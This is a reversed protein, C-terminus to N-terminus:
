WCCCLLTVTVRASLLALVVGFGGVKIFVIKKDKPDGGDCIGTVPGRQLQQVSPREEEPPQQNAKKEALAAEVLKGLEASKEAAGKTEEAKKAAEKYVYDYDYYDESEDSSPAGRAPQEM